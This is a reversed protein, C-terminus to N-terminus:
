NCTLSVLSLNSYSRLAGSGRGQGSPGILTLCLEMDCQIVWPQAEGERTLERDPSHVSVVTGLFALISAVDSSGESASWYGSLTNRLSLVAVPAASPALYREPNVQIPKESKISYM